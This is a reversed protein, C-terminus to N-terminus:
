RQAEAAPLCSRKAALQRHSVHQYRDAALAQQISVGHTSLYLAPLAAVPDRPFSEVSLVGMRYRLNCRRRRIGAGHVPGFIALATSQRTLHM